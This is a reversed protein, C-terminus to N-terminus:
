AGTLQTLVHRALQPLTGAWAGRLVADNALPCAECRQAGRVLAVHVGAARGAELDSLADGVMWTRQPDLGLRQVLQTVLGPRPKRCDCERVLSPDGGPAGEPHHPCVEIAAFEIGERAFLERLAAHTKDLAAASFHGKAVGPQNTAIALTVGAQQLTRLAEFVGPLPRLHSPHFATFVAGTEEDRLIDVLTGDRDFIVAPRNREVPTSM